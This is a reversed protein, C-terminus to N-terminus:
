KGRSQLRSRDEVLTLVCCFVEGQCTEHIWGSWNYGCFYNHSNFQVIKIINEIVGARIFIKCRSLVGSKIVHLFVARTDFQKTLRHSFWGICIVQMNVYIVACLVFIGDRIRLNHRCYLVFRCLYFVDVRVRVFFGVLYGDYM